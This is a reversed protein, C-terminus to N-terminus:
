EQKKSKSHNSKRKFQKNSKSKSKSKIKNKIARAEQERGTYHLTALPQSMPWQAAAPMTIM